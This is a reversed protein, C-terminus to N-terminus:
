TRKNNVAAYKVLALRISLLFSTFINRYQITEVLGTSLVEYISVARIEDYCKARVTLYQSYIDHTRKFLSAICLDRYSIRGTPRADLPATADTM